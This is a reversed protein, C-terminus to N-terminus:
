TSDESDLSPLIALKSIPRKLTSNATRLTVVRTLGDTGPHLTLIRALPWKSPPMREDTLLVLSGVKLVNSPHHWKSTSLYRQLCESSWRSWFHQLKQQLLQWRDLRNCALHELSPEPITNLPEGILFHGPTLASIDDPDDSLPSIPRSNLVAEIQILLTSLEEFTMPTDGVTRKLHFKVSKVAAEWKGGFHPAAPPIFSWHTGDKLLLRSLTLHEKSASTFLDKLASEAGQFTTGCDSYLTHCIGRRGTLRRYAAMFKDTSYDTVVELHVASTSLCVFIALWGKHTKAGRGSWTKLTIPGAYDVGTHLFPRSPTVRPSPLQGMLQQARISRHRACTICKLIHSRIPARGGVIWYNQRLLCLTIQTGGHLTKQHADSILLSSLSCKRPLIVPSQSNEDLFSNKLRGGVRLTGSHDLFPTLRILSNSKSLPQRQLICKITESFYASQTSQIWFLLAQQIEKPSIPSLFPVNLEHKFKAVARQCLVTIRLLRQISSFRSSLNWLEPIRQHSALLSVGPREESNTTIYPTNTSSPWVSQDQSLWSPGSWWLPHNILQSSTLGRSACDAPNQKGPVLKWKAHPVGDQIFHVRNRVFDKWRSPHSQIWSLAVNSDTWLYIEHDPLHLAKIM